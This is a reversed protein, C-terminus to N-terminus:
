PRGFASVEGNSAIWISLFCLFIPFVNDVLVKPDEKQYKLGGADPSIKDWGQYKALSGGFTFHIKLDEQKKRYVGALELYNFPLNRSSLQHCEIAKM